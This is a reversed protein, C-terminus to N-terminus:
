SVENLTRIINRSEGVIYFSRKDTRVRVGTPLLIGYGRLLSYVGKNIRYYYRLISFACEKSLKEKIM